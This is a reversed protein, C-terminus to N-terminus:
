FFHVIGFVLGEPKGGTAIPYANINFTYKANARNNLKTWGTYLLTRPSLSYSYSVEYQESKTDAGKVLGGV